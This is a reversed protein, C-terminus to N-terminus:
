IESLDNEQKTEIIIYIYHMKSVFCQSLNFYVIINHAKAISNHRTM